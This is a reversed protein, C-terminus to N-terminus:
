EETWTGNKGVTQWENAKVCVLALMNGVVAGGQLYDGNASTGIIRDNGNPDVTITFADTVFFTMSMGVVAAPLDYHTDSDNGANTYIQGLCTGAATLDVTANNGSNVAIAKKLANWTGTTITGVSTLGSLTAVSSLATWAPIAGTAGALYEGTAGVAALESVTNTATAALLKFATVTGPWLSTTWAPASAGQSILMQGSTGAGPIMYGTTLSIARTATTYTLGTPVASLVNASSWDTGDSILTNGASGATTPITATSWAPATNVGGARLFSGAAVDALKSLTGTASAYLLDGVAYSGINTGGDAVAVDTGAARYVYAGGITLATPLDNAWAPATNVGGSALFYGTAVDALKSLAGTGSAYLLDGVAYSSINTGGDSVGVDTGGARYVYASGITMGTPLDSIWAPATGTGASGLVSGTAVAALKSLTGTASAYLMDGITYSAIATGGGAVPLVSFSLTGSGNTIMAYNATGGTTPLTITYDASISPSTLTIYNSSGDSLELTAPGTGGTKTIIVAGTSSDITTNTGDHTITAYAASAGLVKIGNTVKTIITDAAWTGATVYPYGTWASSNQGTGGYTNAIATGQWGGATINGANFTIAEVIVTGSTSAITLSTSGSHTLTASNASLTLGAHTPSAAQALNQDITSDASVILDSSGKTVTFTNTATDAIVTGLVSWTGVAVQPTGTSASTDLDTGGAAQNIRNDSDADFTSALMDGGGAVTTWSMVASGNTTLAQGNSGDTLPFVYTKSATPTGPSFTTDYTGGELVVSTGKVAGSSTVAGANWTGTTVAGTNATIVLGNFGTKNTLVTAAADKTADSTNDVNALGIATKDLTAWSPGAGTGGGKLYTTTAGIGLKSLASTSSAYLLDGITYATQGTGGHDADIVTGHWAGTAITGLTTISSAGTWTAGAIAALNAHYAQVDTGIVKASYTGAGNVYVLGTIADETTKHTDLQAHTNTGIDTLSAHSRTTVQTINTLTINDAVQADTLTASVSWIGASISPVGTLGASTIGTGGRSTALYQEAGIATGSTWYAVYNTTGSGLSPVTAWSLAAAGNTQLFQSATGDAPPFTYSVAASPTGAVFTTDYTGGELIVNTVHATTFTPTNSVSWTGGTVLAIGTSGSTNIGTGGVAALIYGAPGWTAAVMDGTGTVTTPTWLLTAADWALVQGTTPATKSIDKIDKLKFYVPKFSQSPLITVLGLILLFALLAKYLNKMRAEMLLQTDRQL